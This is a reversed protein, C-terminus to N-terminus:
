YACDDSVVLSTAAADTLARYSGGAEEVSVLRWGVQGVQCDLLRAGRWTTVERTYRAYVPRGDACASRATTAAGDGALTWATDGDDTYQLLYALTVTWAPDGDLDHSAPPETDLRASFAGGTLDVDLVPLLDPDTGNAVQLPVGALRDRGSLSGSVTGALDLGVAVGRLPLQLPEMDFAHFRPYGDSWRWMLPQTTGVLCAPGAHTGELGTDVLSWGAPWGSDGLTTPDLWVLLRHFAMGRIPLGEYFHLAGTASPTFATLMYLAGRLDPHDAPALAIHTDRPPVAPLALEFGGDADPAAAALTAGFAATDAAFSLHTAGVVLEADSPLPDPPLVVTGSLVRAELVPDPDPGDGTDDGPDTTTAAGSDGGGVEPPSAKGPTAPAGCAGLLVAALYLRAGRGLERSRASWAALSWVVPPHSAAM